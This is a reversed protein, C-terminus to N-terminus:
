SCFLVAGRAPKARRGRRRKAGGWHNGKAGGLHSVKVGGKVTAFANVIQSFNNVSLSHGILDGLTITRGHIARFL